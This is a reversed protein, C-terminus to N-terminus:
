PMLLLKVQDIMNGFFGGKEVKDATILPYSGIIKQELMVHAIGVEQGADFPAVLYSEGEFETVYPSKDSSNNSAMLAFIGQKAVLKVQDSEGKLVDINHVADSEDFLKKSHYNAFGFRLLASVAEERATISKAGTVVAILRLNDKVASGVLCYGAEDTHGTKVGDVSSDRYLLGNRNAQTIENYTFEQESYIRYYQPHTEIMKETLRALDSATTYHEPHPWGSADIFHSQSMGLDSATKNMLTAFGEESGAIYEAIAVAADNGSQIILGRLLDELRVSKGVEIFMKSGGMRWAKESIIVQDDLSIQGKEIQEFAIYATMIKTLSAPAIQLNADKETLVWGTKADILTWSVADVQPAPVDSKISEPLPEYALSSQSIFFSLSTVILFKKFM